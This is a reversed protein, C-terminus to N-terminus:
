DDLRQRKSLLAEMNQFGSKIEMSLSSVEQQHQNLQTTLHGVQAQLNQTAAGADQFWQEHRSNQSRIEAIDVELQKFRDDTSSLVSQAVREEMTVLMSKAHMPEDETMPVNRVPHSTAGPRWPDYQYQSWPDAEQGSSSAPASGVAEKTSRSNQKPEKQLKRLHGQTKSSSTLTIGNEGESQARHLSIVIDGAKTSMVMGPPDEAAGVLWGMGQADAKCPQLPKAKWGWAKLMALIGLKQTGHPLPRLEFTKHVEFNAFPIEPNLQLHVMEADKLPVRLGYRGGFRAVAYASESMKLKHIAEALSGNQLWVVTSNVDSGRGESQRPEVYLGMTGSLKQLPVILTNPVRILVHFVDADEGPARKGRLTLWSRGWVDLIVSDLDTDVPAHYKQCQGGCRQGNCLTFAPHKQLLTRLPSKVLVSWDEPWEDRFQVLKLVGTEIAPAEIPVETQKRIITLDWLNVLSGELLIPEQTPVYLAPYRLNVVPLLGQEAPPVRSTTLVALGDLSLSKGERLFPLIESVQAFALGARHAAVDKMPLQKIDTGDQLMFTGEILQLQDPAVDSAELKQKFVKNKKDSAQVKFRSQARLRIQKELEDAQVFLFNIRPMSGLSKLAQWPNKAQLAERLKTAGIKELAAKAREETRSAPVGHASLIDRLSWLVDRDEEGMGKGEALIFGCPLHRAMHDHWQFEDPHDDNAWLGLRNGLHLLAITGCTRDGRQEYLQIKTVCTPSIALIRRLKAVFNMMCDTNDHEQGDMYLLHLIGESYYCELLHWHRDYAVAMFLHGHLAAFAWHNLVEEVEDKQFWATALAAPMWFHNHTKQAKRILLNAMVDMCLDTLGGRLASGSGGNARLFVLETLVIDQWIRSDLDVRHGGEDKLRHHLAQLGLAYAAEFVFVGAPFVGEVFQFDEQEVIMFAIKVTTQTPMKRQRKVGITQVYHGAIPAQQLKTQEHLAGMGDQMKFRYGMPFSKAEAAFLDAVTQGPSSKIEIWQKEMADFFGTVFPEQDFTFRGHAERFLFNQYNILAQFKTGHCNWGADDAFHGLMWLAQLPAACQGILCLSKRPGYPFHMGPSITCLYAAEAVHLYRARGSKGIVFFGRIGDRQLRNWSFKGRCGCPCEQLVSGYSHLLCPAPMDMRLHRVDDGYMKDQFMTYEEDSLELEKEEDDPWLPWRAFVHQVQPSPTVSPMNSIDSLQYTVPVLMAWWRSRRSPWVANLHLVRQHLEMGLSWCLKRLERQVHPAHLAAPVCELLLGGAQQEWALKVMSKFVETRSDHEGRQDGQSSLPQCPFGSFVWGRHGDHLQHLCYRDQASLVDGKIVGFHGNAELTECVMSNIDLMGLCRMGLFTGAMGIGGIGSTVEKFTTLDIMDNEPIYVVKTEQVYNLMYGDAALSVKADYLAVRKEPDLEPGNWWVSQEHACLLLAKSGVVGAVGTWSNGESGKCLMPDM